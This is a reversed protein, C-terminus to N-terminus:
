NRDVAADRRTAGNLCPVPLVSLQPSFSCPTITHFGIEYLRGRFAHHREGEVPWITEVGQRTGHDLAQKLRQRAKRAIWRYSRHYQRAGATRETCASVDFAHSLM